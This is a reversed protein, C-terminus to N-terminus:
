GASDAFNEYLPVKTLTPANPENRMCVWQKNPVNILPVLEGNHVQVTSACDWKGSYKAISVGNPGVPDNHQITWDIPQIMGDADFATQPEPRRHGEAALLEARRAEARDGDALADIWGYGALESMPKHIRAMWDVFLKVVPIQPQYELAVFQPAVFDGELYQANQKVFNADYANPLSQVADLHQKVLEKGLILTENQDICTFILQVGKQKMQAVQSSVDPQALALQEDTYVIQASPYKAFSRQLGQACAKSSAQDYAIVGVKKYHEYQALFPSGQGM